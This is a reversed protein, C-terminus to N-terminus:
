PYITIILDNSIKDKWIEKGKNSRINGSQGLKKILTRSIGLKEGLIKDLRIDFLFDCTIQIQVPQPLSIIPVTDGKIEYLISEYDLVVKNQSHINSDFAYKWALDADNYLYKQYLHTSISSPNVRSLINMNWTTKCKKCQYILWVDIKNQNANIRFNGTSIFNSKSGCKSCNKIVNPQNLPIIEWLKTKQM